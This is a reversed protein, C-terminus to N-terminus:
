RHEKKDIPELNKIYNDHFVIIPPVMSYILIFNVPVIIALYIGFAKVVLIDSFANAAFACCTTASTTAVAKASKRLTYAFRKRIGNLEKMQNSQRWSEIIVFVNNSGIALVIIIVFNHM